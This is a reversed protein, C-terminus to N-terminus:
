GTQKSQEAKKCRDRRGRLVGVFEPLDDIAQCPELLLVAIEGFLNTRQAFLEGSGM